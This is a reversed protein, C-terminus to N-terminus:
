SNCRCECYWVIILICRKGQATNLHNDPVTWVLEDHIMLTLHSNIHNFQKYLAQECQVMAAKCIDAASGVIIVLVSGRSVTIVLEDHIMLTLHSNIHNFQKYLAQECQVM